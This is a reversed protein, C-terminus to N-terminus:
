RKTQSRFDIFIGRNEYVNKTNNSFDKQAITRM